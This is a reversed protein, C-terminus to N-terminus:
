PKDKRWNVIFVGTIVVVGGIIQQLSINEGLILVGGITSVVPVLNVYSSIVVSDLRSLAYIYLFYGLATCFIALYLINAWANLPIPIWAKHELLALPFLFITGFVIQYTTLVLGSLKSMLNKSLIIYAVWSLCAGLMLFNGIISQPNNESDGSKRIIFYVGIISLLVGIWKLLPIRNKYVVYETCITFIPISAIIMSASSASTLKIGKSEFFFYITTGFVGSLILPLWDKKEINTNPELKKLLPLLIVSSIFFRIFVMTLPPVGANLISKSSVFSMGWLLVTIFSAFHALIHSSNKQKYVL